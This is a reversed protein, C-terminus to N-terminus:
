VENSYPQVSYEGILKKFNSPDGHHRRIVSLPIKPKREKKKKM